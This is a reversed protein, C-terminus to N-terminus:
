YVNMTFLPAAIAFLNIMVAAIVVEVYISKNRRLAGWFWDKGKEIRATGVRDDLRAAPRIFYAYGSYLTKLDALKVDKMEGPTEPYEIRLITDDPVLVRRTEEDKALGVSPFVIE